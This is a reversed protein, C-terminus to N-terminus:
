ALTENNAMKGKGRNTTGTKGQGDEEKDWTTITDDESNASADQRENTNDVFKDRCSVLSAPSCRAPM